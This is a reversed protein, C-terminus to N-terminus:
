SPKRFTEPTKGARVCQSEHSAKPWPIGDNSSTGAPAGFQKERCRYRWAACCEGMLVLLSLRSVAVIVLM